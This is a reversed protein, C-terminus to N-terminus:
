SSMSSTTLTPHSGSSCSSILTPLFSRSCASPHRVQQCVAGIPHARFPWVSSDAYWKTIMDRLITRSVVFVLVAGLLSAVYSVVFGEWVGFTYGSLVMLTSYLPLPPITTLLILFGFIIKGEMGMNFLDKSLQDLAVTMLEGTCPCQNLNGSFLQGRWFATALLFMGTTIVWGLILARGLGGEKPCVWGRWEASRSRTAAVVDGLASPVRRQDYIGRHPISQQRYPVHHQYVHEELFPESKEFPPYDHYPEQVYRPASSADSLAPSPSHHTAYSTSAHNFPPRTYSSASVMNPQPPPSLRRTQKIDTSMTTLSHPAHIRDPRSRDSALSPPSVRHYPPLPPNRTQSSSPPTVPFPLDPACGPVATGPYDPEKSGPGEIDRM